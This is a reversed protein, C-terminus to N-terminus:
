IIYKKLIPIKSIIFVVANSLLFIVISFLPISLLPCITNSTIGVARMAYIFFDHLLYVGFSLKSLTLIGRKIGSSLKEENINYKFFLFVGISVLVNNPMTYEYFMEYGFGQKLSFYYTGAMTIFAGVIAGIYAIRRARKSIDHKYLYFGLVFYGSYGLVLSPTLYIKLTSIVSPINVWVTMLTGLSQFVFWLVIFYECVKKNKCIERLIPSIIYLTIITFVFWLHYRGGTLWKFIFDSVGLIQTDRCLILYMFSWFLYAVVIRFIKRTFIDKITYSKHPNLFLAGSIMIFVPVSFRLLSDYFNITKWAQTYVSFSYFDIAPVHIMVVCFIAFARLVDMYFVRKNEM